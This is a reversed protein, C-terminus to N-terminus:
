EAPTAKAALFEAVTQTEGLTVIPKIVIPSTSGSSADIDDTAYKTSSMFFLENTDTDQNYGNSPEVYFAISLYGGSYNNVPIDMNYTVTVDGVAFVLTRSSDDYKSTLKTLGDFISEDTVTSSQLKELQAETASYVTYAPTQNKDLKAELFYYSMSPSAGSEMSAYGGPIAYGIMTVGIANEYTTTYSPEIENKSIDTLTPASDGLALTMSISITDKGDYTYYSTDSDKEIEYYGQIQDMSLTVKELKGDNLTGVLKYNSLSM